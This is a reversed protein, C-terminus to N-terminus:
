PTKVARLLVVSVGTGAFRNEYVASWELSCGTLVVNAKASAPLVAVLVGATALLSAAASLHTQWRGESFPPNMMIRTFLPAGVSWQVFDAQVPHFGKSQLIKCHLPSIEVCTVREALPALVALAGQGASPELVNDNLGINALAVVDAAIENPTPYYQHAKQDPICGTTTIEQVVSIPDYDFAWRGRGAPTGGITELIAAAEDVSASSRFNTFSYVNAVKIYTDKRWGRDLALDYAQEFSSLIDLVAFPLPRGIMQFSKGRKEPRQRFKAPIALPHLGALVQNLRWSM